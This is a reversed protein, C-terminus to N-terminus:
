PVELDKKRPVIWTTHREKVVFPNRAGVVWTSGPHDAAGLPEGFFPIGAPYMQAPYIAGFM